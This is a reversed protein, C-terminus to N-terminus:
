GGCSGGANATNGANNLGFGPSPNEKSLSELNNCIEPKNGETYGCCLMKAIDYPSRSQPSLQKGNFVFTPSGSVGYQQNEQEYIPYPPYGRYNPDIILGYEEKTENICNDILSKNINNEEMCETANGKDVFCELYNWFKEEGEKQQICYWRTNEEVEKAGHM